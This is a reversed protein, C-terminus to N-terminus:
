HPRPATAGSADFQDVADFQPSIHKLSAPARHGRFSDWYAFRHHQRYRKLSAPARHGRFCHM